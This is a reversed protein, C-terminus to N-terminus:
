PENSKQEVLKELLREIRKVADTLEAIESDRSETQATSEEPAITIADKQALITERFGEADNIGLLSVLAGAGSQGATEFSLQHLGFMRMLPGQILAVDTIKELPISKEVKHFVGRKVVLKRDYLKASIAKLIRSSIFFALPLTLILLPIGVVTATSILTFLLVWYSKVSPNFEAELLVNDKM